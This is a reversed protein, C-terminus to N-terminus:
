RPLSRLWAATAALGEDWGIRPAWGTERRLLASDLVNVPMDAPRAPRHVIAAPDGGAIRAADEAVARISRGTGSGVNMVRAAGRYVAARVFARAVDEAHVFDRVVSGDGWIEGPLGRIARDLLAAVVGQPAGPMQGPGYANAIRLAVFDLGHLRRYLALYKEIALKAVGYATIPETPADERIPAQADPAYVTGGSSAFVIRGVGAERAAELLGLAPLISARADAAPDRNSEAPARPGILHFVVDQGALAHALTGADEFAGGIWRVDSTLGAPAAAQRGFAATRAGAAALARCLHLGLFGAGGLVLCNLGALSPDGAAAEPVSRITM